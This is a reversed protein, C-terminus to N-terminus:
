TRGTSGSSHAFLRREWFAADPKQTKLFEDDRLCFILVERLMSKAADAFQNAPVKTQQDLLKEKNPDIVQGHAVHSRMDYVKKFRASRNAREELQYFSAYNLGLRTTVEGSKESNLLAELGICADVLADDWERRGEADRLRRLAVRVRGDNSTLARNVIEVTAAEIRVETAFGPLSGESVVMRRSGFSLVHSRSEFLVDRLPLRGPLALHLASHASAIANYREREAELETQVEQPNMMGLPDNLRLPVDYNLELAFNAFPALHRIGLTSPEFEVTREETTLQRFVVGNVLQIPELSVTPECAIDLRATARMPIRGAALTRAFERVASAADLEAGSLVSRALAVAIWVPEVSGGIFGASLASPLREDCDNLSALEPSAEVSRRVAAWTRVGRGIGPVLGVGGGGHPVARQVEDLPPQASAVQIARDVLASLRALLDESLM